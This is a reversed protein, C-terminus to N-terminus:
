DNRLAKVPNSLAAKGSQLSVTVFAILVTLLGAVVFLYWPIQIRFAFDQLWKNMIFWAIPSAILIAILVLKLFSKSLMLMISSVSAGLVKRIGIEKTRNVVSYATLAFLGLCALLIALASFTKFIAATRQESVYIANYDDDIFHFEFPRNNVEHKWISEVTKLVKPMDDTSVKLFINNTNSKDLFIILPTIPQHLSQFNFDKVVGKVIGDQGKNITKGIAQEPTWGLAKAASENIIFTNRYNKGGNTTDLQLLDAHTFNSGALLKIDFLPVYNEDAPIANVLTKGGEQSTIDDGWQVVVPSSNAVSVQQVGPINAFQTKLTNVAGYIQWDLPLAIINNRKYGVDKTQIYNLQKSIVATSLILFFSIVFQFVILSQKVSSNGTFSFGSKLLKALKVNSLLLSPYSGSVVSMIISLVILASIVVPNFFDETTFKKGAILNFQPLLMYALILSLVMGIAVFMISEGIFQRFLQAQGAGLVKRISIEASRNASQAVALNTYNVAAIFLTLLAISFLIYIYVISGNPEFGANPSHLHVDKLHEINIKLFAGGTMKLEGASVNQMYANIQKQLPQVDAPSKLLLYTIYNATFWQEPSKAASLLNFPLVMDFQMQSNSPTNKAIGSVTYFKNDSKIVKGLADQNGFYKKAIAETIVIKDPSNLATNPNGEILPFSFVSFFPEDAYMVNESFLQGNNNFTKASKMTRVYQEVEPFERKFQPGDKTGTNATSEVSTGYSYQMTLRVIRDANQHFSDYSLENYLYIGILLCSTLGATLGIINVFSYLKNKKIKRWAIKFYNKLM